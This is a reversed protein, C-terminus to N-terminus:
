EGKSMIAAILSDSFEFGFRANFDAKKYKTMYKLHSVAQKLALMPDTGNELKRKGARSGWAHFILMHRVRGRPERSVEDHAAISRLTDQQGHWNPVSVPMVPTFGVAPRSSSGYPNDDCDARRAGCAPPLPAPNCLSSGETLAPNEAFYRIAELTVASAM